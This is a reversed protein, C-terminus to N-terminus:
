SVVMYGVSWHGMISLVNCVCHAFMKIKRGFNGNKEGLHYAGWLKTHVYKAYNILQISVMGVEVYDQHCHFQSQKAVKHHKIHVRHM